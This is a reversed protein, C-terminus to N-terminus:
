GFRRAAEAPDGRRLPRDGRGPGRGPLPLRPPQLGPRHLPSRSSTSTPTPRSSGAPTRTRSPRRPWSRWRSRTTSAWSRAREAPGAGGLGQHGGESARLRHRLLGQGRDDHGDDSSTAAPRRRARPSRRCCRRPTSSRRGQRQHLHVRRRGPRRPADAAPGSAPSTSRCRAVDPRDYITADHTTTTSARSPSGSRPGCSAQDPHDGRPPPRVAGQRTPGTSARAPGREDVRRHGVGLIIRDEALCGLTAFAQAVIAPHYRFSPTLVSTGLTVRTTSAALAGSGARAREPRPRRHAAVAPPPRQDLGLRLGRARRRDRPRAPPAPPVARRVGQLRPDPPAEATTPQMAEITADTQSRSCWPGPSWSARDRSVSRSRARGRRRACACSAGCRRSCSRRSGYHHSMALAGPQPGRPRPRLRLVHPLRRRGRARDFPADPSSGRRTGVALSAAALSSSAPGARGHVDAVPDGRLGLCAHAVRRRHRSGLLGCDDRGHAPRLRGVGTTRAGRRDSCGGLGSSSCCAPSCSGSAWGRRPSWGSASSASASRSRSSRRRGGRSRTSSRCTAADSHRPSSRSTSSRSAARHSASRGRRRRSVRGASRSGASSSSRCSCSRRPRSASRPRACRTTPRRSCSTGPPTSSPRWRSSAM